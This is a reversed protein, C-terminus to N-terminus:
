RRRIPMIFEVGHGGPDSCSATRLGWPKDSPGADFVVGAKTLREHVEDVDDVTFHFQVRQPESLPEGIHFAITADSAGAVGLMVFRPTENRVQLGLRTVYWDRLVQPNHTWVTVTSFRM